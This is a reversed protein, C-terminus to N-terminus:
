MASSLVAIVTVTVEHLEYGLKKCANRVSRVNGAGYDLLYVKHDAAALVPAAARRRRPQSRSHSGSLLAPQHLRNAGLQPAM